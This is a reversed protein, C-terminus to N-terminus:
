QGGLGQNQILWRALQRDLRPLLTRLVLAACIRAFMAVSGAFIAGSEVNPSYYHHNHIAKSPPSPDLAGAYEDWVRSLV